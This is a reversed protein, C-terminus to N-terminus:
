SPSGEKTKQKKNKIKGIIGIVLIVLGVTALVGGEALPRGPSDPNVTVKIAKGVYYEDTDYYKGVKVNKYEKGDVEYDAYVTYVTSTFGSEMDSEESIKVDSITAEM